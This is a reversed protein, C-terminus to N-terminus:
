ADAGLLGEPNDKFEDKQYTCPKSKKGSPHDYKEGKRSGCNKCCKPKGLQSTCRKSLVVPAAGELTDTPHLGGTTDVPKTHRTDSLFHPNPLEVNLPKPPQTTSPISASFTPAEATGHKTTHVRKITLNYGDEGGPM